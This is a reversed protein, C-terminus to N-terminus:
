LISGGNTEDTWAVVGDGHEPVINAVTGRKDASLSYRRPDMM